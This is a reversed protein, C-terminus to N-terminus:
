EEFMLTPLFYIWLRGSPSFHDPFTFPCDWPDMMHTSPPPPCPIPQSTLLCILPPMPDSMDAIILILSLTSGATPQSFVAELLSPVQLSPRSHASTHTMWFGAPFLPTALICHPTPAPLHCSAFKSLYTKSVVYWILGQSDSNYSQISFYFSYSWIMGVKKKQLITSKCHQTLKHQIAFHNM